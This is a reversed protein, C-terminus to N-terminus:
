SIEPLDGIWLEFGLEAFLQEFWRNRRPSEVGARVKVGAMKRERYFREAEGNSHVLRREGYEGTEMDVFAIQQFSPHSDVGLILM